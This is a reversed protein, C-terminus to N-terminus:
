TGKKRPTFLIPVIDGDPGPLIRGRIPYNPLPSKPHQDILIFKRDLETTNQESRLMAFCGDIFLPDHSFNLSIERKYRMEANKDFICRYALQRVITQDRKSAYANQMCFIVSTKFHHSGETFLEELEKKFFIKNMM